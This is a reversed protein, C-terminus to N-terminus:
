PAAPRRGWIGRAMAQRIEWTKLSGSGDRDVAEFRDRGLGSEDLSVGNDGDRDLIISQQLSDFLLSYFEDLEILGDRNADIAEFEWDTRGYSQADIPYAGDGQDNAVPHREARELLQKVRDLEWPAVAGDADLDFRALDDPSPGEGGTDIPASRAVGQARAIEHLEELRKKLDSADHELGENGSEGPGGANAARTKRANAEQADRRIASASNRIDRSAERVPRPASPPSETANSSRESGSEAPPSPADSALWLWGVGLLLAASAIALAPRM